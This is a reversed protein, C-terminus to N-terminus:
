EESIIGCIKLIKELSLQDIRWNPFEFQEKSLNVIENVQKAEQETENIFYITQPKNYKDTYDITIIYIIEGFALAPKAISDMERRLRHYDGYNPLYTYTFAIKGSLNYSPIVGGFYYRIPIYYTQVPEGLEPIYEFKLYTDITPTNIHRAQEGKSEIWIDMHDNVESKDSMWPEFHIQFVPQDSIRTEKVLQNNIKIQYITLIIGCLGVNIGSIWWMRQLVVDIKKREEAM